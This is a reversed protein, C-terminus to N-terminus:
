IFIDWPGLLAFFFFNAQGAQLLMHSFSKLPGEINICDKNVM